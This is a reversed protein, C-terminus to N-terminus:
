DSETSVLEEPGVVTVIRAAGRRLRADRTLVRCGTLRALALYEADYTKAWGLSRALRSAETYLDPDDRRAIGLESLRDIASSATEAGIDGRFALEHLASASESWLLPPGILEEAALESPLSGSLLVPVVVSADVVLTL